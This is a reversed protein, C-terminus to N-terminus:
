EKDDDDYDVLIAFEDLPWMGSRVMRQWTGCDAWPNQTSKYEPFYESAKEFASVYLLGASDAREAEEFSKVPVFKTPM